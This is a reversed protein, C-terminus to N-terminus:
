KEGIIKNIKLYQEKTINELVMTYTQEKPLPTAIITYDGSISESIETNELEGRSEIFNILDRKVNFKM